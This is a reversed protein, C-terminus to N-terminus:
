LWPNTFPQDTVRLSFLVWVEYPNDLMENFSCITSTSVVALVYTTNIM